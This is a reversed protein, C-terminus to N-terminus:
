STPSRDFFTNSQAGRPLDKAVTMMIDVEIIALVNGGRTSWATHAVLGGLPEWGLPM